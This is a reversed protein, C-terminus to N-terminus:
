VEYGNCKTCDDWAEQMLARIEAVRRQRGM